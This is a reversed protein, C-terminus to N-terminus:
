LSYHQKWLELCKPCVNAPPGDILLKNRRTEDVHGCLAIGTEARFHDDALYAHYLQSSKITDELSPAELPPKM